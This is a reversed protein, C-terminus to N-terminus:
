TRSKQVGVSDAILSEIVAPDSITSTDGIDEVRGSAIKQLIRRMIKGSRTKPMADAWQIVDITAIPGIEKRVLQVLEKKLEDSKEVGTNLTVFAYIGQGKIPHPFGVVAAEAVRDHLVLASEIEATGMRHGSVNIVDDIRGIIWFYGDEDTKAGDGSFYMGPAQSFYTEIFRDHDGYVTRAMGPWPKRICLVGEQEPFRVEEGVDDLIVPDVGFFPLCCSGPKLPITGPLATLMHGGTETQWWTDMIPCRDKGVYHYYWRWAEPNFSEGVSGLIKLSSLDYKEVYETGEKALSRIVTPATYFKSVHFQDVIQWYRGFDPYSPVGEFIISTIGNILPGYVAYSHGTVWGIDATCWFVDEERLDFVLHNTVAAYLLYGGHTHVVGKPVGTSGSTYLVFLPDEADMSEAPVHSHLGPDALAEHWWVDRGPHMDPGTGARDFVIVKQVDPCHNLADDVIGKLPIVKGSRFSGDATIVTRAGCNRIRNAIAEASFGAFVVCHIAGILACALMAVPLEVIMPMYIIVRDGKEVDHAKLVAALRNVEGSLEGYTVARTEDPSDGVWYYAVKDKRTELHRDLCNHVANIRGGGFWEIRAEDFDYKLVFDWKRDWSLYKEAQEAWFGEPDEISKRYLREYEERGRIHAIKQYEKLHADYVQPSEAM